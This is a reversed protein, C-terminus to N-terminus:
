GVVLGLFGLLVRLRSRVANTLKDPDQAVVGEIDYLAIHGKGGATLLRRCDASFAMTYCNFFQQPRLSAVHKLSALGSM